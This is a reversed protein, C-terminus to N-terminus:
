PDEREVPLEITVTTGVGVESDIELRGRHERDIIKLALPLGLGIGGRDKKLSRFPKTADEVQFADMGPGTDTITVRLCDTGDTEGRIEVKADDMTDALAEFANSLVNVLARVLRDKCAELEIEELIELIVEVEQDALCADAKDRALDLAEIVMPRLPQLQFDMDVDKSYELLDSGLTKLYQSRDHIKGLIESVGPSAGHGNGIRHELEQLLGEMATRYTNLEHATDGALEEYHREGVRLAAAYIKEASRGELDKVTEFAFRAQEDRKEAPTTIRALKRMAREAAQRVWQNDDGTLREIVSRAGPRRVDVLAPVVARRVEWKTDQALRDLVEVLREVTREAPLDRLLEQVLEVVALRGEWLDSAMADDIKRLAAGHRETAM